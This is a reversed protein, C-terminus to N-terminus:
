LLGVAQGQPKCPSLQHRAEANTKMVRVGRCLSMGCWALAVTLPSPPYHPQQAGAQQRDREWLM